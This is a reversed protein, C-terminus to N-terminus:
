AGKTKEVYLTIAQKWRDDVVTPPAPLLEKEVALDAVATLGKIRDTYKDTPPVGGYWSYLTSRAVGLMAIVLHVPLGARNTARYMTLVDARMDTENILAM